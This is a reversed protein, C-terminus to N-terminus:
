PRTVRYLVYKSAELRHYYLSKEDPSLTPGEALGEISAVRQPAGFPLTTSTRTATYILPTGSDVRNFFIELGSKSVTPAYAVNGSNLQRTIEDSNAARVFGTGQREFLAINAALPVSLFVFVGEAVYLQNGDSSISADFDLTAIATPAVGQVLELGTLAGAAFQGRYVSAQTNAATRLSIFYLLGNRDMSPVGDLSGSNAGRVPGRYQFTLDDVREAYRLNTNTDTANSNNFFIYRGDPSVFPEMADDTYGLVTVREPQAFTTPGAVVAAAAQTTEASGGCATLAAAALASGIQHWLKM